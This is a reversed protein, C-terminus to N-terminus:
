ARSEGAEQATLIDRARAHPCVGEQLWGHTQCQGHHDFDECPERDALDRVLQALDDIVSQARAAEALAERCRNVAEERQALATRKESIKEALKTVPVCKFHITGGGHDGLQARVAELEAEAKEARAAMYGECVPMIGHDHRDIVGQLRAIEAHLAALEDVGIITVETM